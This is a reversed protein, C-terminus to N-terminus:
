LAQQSEGSCRCHSPMRQITSVLAGLLFWPRSVKELATVFPIVFMAYNQSWRKLPSKAPARSDARAELARRLKSSWTEKLKNVRLLAAGMITIIISGVLSFVGEWIDEAKSFSDKGYSYFACIM